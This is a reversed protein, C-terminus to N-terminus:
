FPMIIFFFVIRTKAPKSSIAAAPQEATDFFDALPKIYPQPGVYVFDGVRIALTYARWFNEASFIVVENGQRNYELDFYNEVAEISEPTAKDVISKLSM